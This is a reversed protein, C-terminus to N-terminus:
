NNQIIHTIIYILLGVLGGVLTGNIRIFQLDKGVELELKNSLEKGQWNGVTNSILEGAKQTNRLIYKYANYQVWNNLKNQLNADQKLNTVMERITKKFYVQIASQNGSLDSVIGAQLSKWVSSAYQRIKDGNLISDKIGQLEQQWKPNTQVDKIFYQLQNNVDNRIKHNAENEIETLYKALGSTIKAAIINDVFGPILFHSEQKVRNKIMEENNIVYARLKNVIYNLIREHDGRHVIIELGGALAENLKIEQLLSKSKQTIFDTVANDDAKEVVDKLIKSIESVLIDINKENGLWQTIIHSINLKHIYPRITAANLFNSVVFGGLNDGISKKRNEILNTHPIPIGLPHHFLATVAFWDALAGVMAAEAFARVYGIWADPMTKQLWTCVIYIVVMLIFLGTALAKHKKLQAAKQLDFNSPSSLKM